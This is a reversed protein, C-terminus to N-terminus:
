RKSPKPKEKGAPRNQFYGQLRQKWYDPNGRIEDMFRCAMVTPENTGQEWARVTQVKVGLFTAFLPQSLNLLRRTEKVDEAQYAQPELRLVIQRCTYQESVPQDGDLADAFQTLRDIIKKGITGAM